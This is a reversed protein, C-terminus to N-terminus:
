IYGRGWVFFRRGLFFIKELIRFFIDLGGGRFLIFREEFCRFFKSDSFLIAM